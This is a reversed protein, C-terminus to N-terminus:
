KIEATSLDSILGSACLTGWNFITCMQGGGGELKLNGCIWPATVGYYGYRGDVNNGSLKIGDSINNAGAIEDRTLWSEYNSIFRDAIEEDYGLAALESIKLDRDKSATVIDAVKKYEDINLVGTRVSASSKPVSRQSDDPYTGDPNKGYSISHGGDGGDRSVDAMGELDGISAISEPVFGGYCPWNLNFHLDGNSDYIIIAEKANEPSILDYSTVPWNETSNKVSVKPVCYPMPYKIM